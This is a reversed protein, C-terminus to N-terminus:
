DFFGPQSQVRPERLVVPQRPSGNSSKFSPKPLNFADPSSHFSSGAYSNDDVRKEKIAKTNPNNYHTKFNSYSKDNYFNPKRGDPLSYDSNKNSNNNNSNNSNNSKRSPKSSNLSASSSGSSSSKNSKFPQFNPKSGDPLSPAATLRDKDRNRERDKDRNRERDRDRKYSNSSGHGFDVPAGSPLTRVDDNNYRPQSNKKKPKSKRSNQPILQPQMTSPPVVPHQQQPQQYQPEQALMMM